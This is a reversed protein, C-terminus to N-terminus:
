GAAPEDLRYGVGHVTRIYRPTRPHDGLKRRLNGMHVDLVHDNGQRRPGVVRELMQERTFAVGPNAALLDLLDFETRTLDVTRDRLLVTRAVPDITLEGIRRVDGPASERPRRLMARIRAILERSSFPKTMYDDAGVSLGAVRDEEEGRATLMVVYAQSFDRIRRCVELGDLKPLGLDLVIVHPRFSRALEVASEGDEASEVLFGEETLRLAVLMRVEPADDVVLARVPDPAADTAEM